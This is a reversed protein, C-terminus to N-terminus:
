KPDLYQQNVLYEDINELIQRLYKIVRESIEVLNEASTNQGVEKFSLFGHALDNRNKKISLLDIGDRTDPDTIASFGYIKAITKIERADVNGSFLDDRSFGYKMIDISIITIEQLLKDVDRKKINQLIIKKIELRLQDFSVDKNGIDDFITQIANRMTSEIFKSQRKEDWIM